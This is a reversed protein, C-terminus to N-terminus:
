NFVKQLFHFIGRKRIRWKETRLRCAASPWFCIMIFSWFTPLSTLSIWSFQSRRLFVPSPLSFFILLIQFSSHLITMQYCSLHIHNDCCIYSFVTLDIYTTEFFFFPFRRPFCSMYFRQPETWHRIFLHLDDYEGSFGFMFCSLPKFCLGCHEWAIKSILPPSSDNVNFTTKCQNQKMADGSCPEAAGASASGTSGVPVVGEVFLKWGALDPGAWPSTAATCGTIPTLWRTRVPGFCFFSRPM